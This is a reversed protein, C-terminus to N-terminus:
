ISQMIEEALKRVGNECDLEHLDIRRVIKTAELSAKSAKPDCLLWLCKMAFISIQPTILPSDDSGAVDQVLQEALISCAQKNALIARLGPVIFGKVTAFIDEPSAPLGANCKLNHKGILNYSACRVCDVTKRAIEESQTSRNSFLLSLAKEMDEDIGSQTTSTGSSFLKQLISFNLSSKCSQVALRIFASSLENHNEDGQPGEDFILCWNSVSSTIEDSGCGGVALWEAFVMCSSQMLSIAFARAILVSHEDRAEKNPTSYSSLGSDLKLPTSNRNARRRTPGNLIPSLPSTLLSKDVSIHSINPDEFPENYKAVLAPVVHVSTWSLLRQAGSSM